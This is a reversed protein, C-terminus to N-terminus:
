TLVLAARLGPAGDDQTGSGAGMKEQEDQREHLTQSHRSRIGTKEKANGNWLKSALGPRPGQQLKSPKGGKIPLAFFVAFSQPDSPLQKAPPLQRPFCRASAREPQSLPSRRSPNRARPLHSCCLGPAPAMTGLSVATLLLTHSSTKQRRVRFATDRSLCSCCVPFWSFGDEKWLPPWRWWFIDGLFSLFHQRHRKSPDSARSGLEGFPM